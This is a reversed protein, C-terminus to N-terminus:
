RMEMMLRQKVAKAYTRSIPVIAGNQLQIEEGSYKKIQETNVLFSRHCRLFQEGLEREAEEMKGYFTYEEDRTVM